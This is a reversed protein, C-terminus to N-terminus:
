LLANLLGLLTAATQQTVFVLISQLSALFIMRRAAWDPSDQIHLIIYMSVVCNIMNPIVIFSIFTFSVVAFIRYLMVM